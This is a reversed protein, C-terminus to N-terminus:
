NRYVVKLAPDTLWTQVIYRPSLAELVEHPHTHGPPFIVARGRMPKIKRNQLPFYTEGGDCDNLFFVLSALRVGNNPEEGNQGDVHLVLDDGKDYRAMIYGDDMWEAIGSEELGPPRRFYEAAIINSAEVLPMIESLWDSYMSLNLYTRTSYDPQPDDTVRDDQDFRTILRECIDRDLVDDFTKIYQPV